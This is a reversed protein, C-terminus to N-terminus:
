YIGSEQKSIDQREKARRKKSTSGQGGSGKRPLGAYSIKKKEGPPATKWRRHPWFWYEPYKIVYSEIVESFAETLRIMESDKGASMDPWIPEEVKILYRKGESVMFLPVIPVGANLSLFAPLRTTSSPIGLFPVFIGKRGADQDALVGLFRGSRLKRLAPLLGSKQDIVEIGWKERTRNVARSVLPNHLHAILYAVNINKLTACPGVWEWNSFHGTLLIAGSKKNSLSVLKELGEWHFRRDNEFFRVPPRILFEVLARGANAMSERGTRTIDIAETGQKGLIGSTATLQKEIIGKRLGIRDYAVRGLFRGFRISLSIPLLKFLLSFAEFFLYETVFRANIGSRNRTAPM